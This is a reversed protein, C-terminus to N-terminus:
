QPHSEKELDYVEVSVDPPLVLFLTDKCFVDQSLQNYIDSKAKELVDKTPIASNNINDKDIHGVRFVVLKM